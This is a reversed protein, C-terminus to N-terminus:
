QQTEQIQKAKEQIDKAKEEIEKAKGLVKEEYAPRITKERNRLTLWRVSLAVSFSLPFMADILSSPHTAGVALTFCLWGIAGVMAGSQELRWSKDIQQRPLAGFLSIVAGVSIFAGLVIHVVVGWDVGLGFINIAKDTPLDAIAGAPEWPIFGAVLLVLGMALFSWYMSRTFPTAQRPGIEAGPDHGLPVHTM